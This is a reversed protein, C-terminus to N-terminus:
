LMHKFFVDKNQLQQEDYASKSNLNCVDPEFHNWYVTEGQWGGMTDDVYLSMSPEDDYILSKERQRLDLNREQRQRKQNEVIVKFNEWNKILMDPITKDRLYIFGGNCTKRQDTKRWLCKKTKYLQLNAQFSEKRGLISWIEDTINKQPVCDWDLYIVEDFEQMAIKLVELKHRYLETKMDWINVEDSVKIIEGDPFLSQLINANHFGFVYIVFPYKQYETAQNAIDNALKSPNPSLCSTFEDSDGTFKGWVARVLARKM